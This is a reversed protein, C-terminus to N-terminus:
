FASEFLHELENLLPYRPNAGTCQDDFAAMAMSPLLKKYEAESVDCADRVKLPVELKTALSCFAKALDNGSDGCNISKALEGYHNVTDVLSRHQPFYAQKAGVDCNYRIVHPLAIACAIGHHIHFRAGLQHAISHAIGVFANGLAMGALTAANHVAARSKLDGDKSAPLHAFLLQLSTKSWPRTFDSALVSVYSEIAHTIADIGPAAVQAKPLTRVMSPDIASITPTLIYDALVYKTKDRPDTIVAFPSVESGTGSTSPICILPTSPTKKKTEWYTPVRKTIDMFRAELADLDNAESHDNMLRMLKAADMVSGGGVAFITAPMTSKMLSVGRQVTAFSPDPEVDCFKTVRVGLQALQSEFRAVFGLREMNADSVIFAPGNGVSEVAMEIAKEAAGEEFLIAQPLRVWLHHNQRKAIETMRMLSDPSIETPTGAARQTQVSLRPVSQFNFVDGIVGQASPMNVLVEGAPVKQQFQSVRNQNADMNTHLAAVHGVGGNAVLRACIEVGKEFSDAVYLGLIPAMKECSWPDGPGIADESAVGVLVREPREGVNIDALQAIFRANRGVMQKNIHTGGDARMAQALQKAEANTLLCAGHRVLAEKVPEYINRHVVLTQETACVMGHDFTKSSIVASVAAELDATEDIFAPCNGPGGILSPKGTQAAAQCMQAGGTAWILDCLQMVKVVDEHSPREIFTIVNKPAGAEEAALALLKAARTTCASASPHPLLIIANKTRLAMLAKYIATSTPNTVPLVAAIVGYPTMPMAIAGAMKEKPRWRKFANFVNESAFLNKIAKDEFVGRQTEEVTHRALELRHRGLSMAVDRFIRDIEEFEFSAFAHAAARANSIVSSVVDATNVM